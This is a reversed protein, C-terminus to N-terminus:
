GDNSLRQRQRNEEVIDRIEEFLAQIGSQLGHDGANHAATMARDVADLAAPYQKQGYRCRAVDLWRQAADRTNNDQEASDAAQAMAAAMEDYMKAKRFLRAARDFAKVAGPWDATLRDVAGEVM